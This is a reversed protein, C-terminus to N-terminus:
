NVEKQQGILSKGVRKPLMRGDLVSGPDTDKLLYLGVQPSGSILIVLTARVPCISLTKTWDDCQGSKTVPETAKACVLFMFECLVTSMTQNKLGIQVVRM